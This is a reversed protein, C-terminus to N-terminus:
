IAWCRTTPATRRSSTSARAPHAAAPQPEDLKDDRYASNAMAKHDLRRAPRRHVARDVLGHRDAHPRRIRDSASRRRARARGDQAPNPGNPNPYSRLGKGNLVVLTGPCCACRPPIGAPPFSARSTAARRRFCGGGGAVNADSCAVYLRKGDASLALASPTMGLPQRPTMSINISEVVSCTRPRLQRGGRLRQQYQGRGRVPARDMAARRPPATAPATAGSWTPPIRASACTASCAAPPPTTTASRAMPGTPSSSPNATPISCSATPGGAPRSHPRDGHGIASQDGGRFRRYLDAAYLLRGDPSFAVDGIFDHAARQGNPVIPSPARPRAAHRRRLHIRLGLRQSGGGVYVRDGKPAFALGLWGDAVPATSVVRGAATEIVSIRPRGTDATSCWCTNAM